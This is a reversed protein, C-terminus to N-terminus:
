ASRYVVHLYGVLVEAHEGLLAERLAAGAPVRALVPAALQAPVAEGGLVGLAEPHGEQLVGVPM